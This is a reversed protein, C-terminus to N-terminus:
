LASCGCDQCLDVPDSVWVVESGVVSLWWDDGVSASNWADRRVRLELEFWTSRAKGSFYTKVRRM